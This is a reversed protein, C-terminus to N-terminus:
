IRHQIRLNSRQTKTSHVAARCKRSQQEPKPETPRPKTESPKITSRSSLSPIRCVGLNTSKMQISYGSRKCPKSLRTVNLSTVLEYQATHKLGALNHSIHDALGNLDAKTTKVQDDCALAQCYTSHIPRRKDFCRLLLAM